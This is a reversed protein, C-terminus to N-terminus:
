PANCTLRAIVGEIPCINRETQIKYVILQETVNDRHLNILLQALILILLDYNYTYLLSTWKWYVTNTHFAINVHVKLNNNAKQSNIPNCLAQTWCTLLLTTM